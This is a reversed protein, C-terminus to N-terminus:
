AQNPRPAPGSRAKEVKTPQPIKKVSSVKCREGGRIIISSFRDFTGAPDRTDFGVRNSFELGTCPGFLDVQYWQRDEAQVYLQRDNDAHWDRIGHYQTFPIGAEPEGPVPAQFAYQTSSCAALLLGAVIVSITKRMPKVQKFVTVSSVGYTLAARPLDIRALGARSGLYGLTVCYRV